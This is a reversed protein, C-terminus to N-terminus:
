RARRDAGLRPALRSRNSRHAATRRDAPVGHADLVARADGAVREDHCLIEVTEAGALVRAIEAYVWPIAGLKGPWDPEHHPWSIWTARHPEWEAPMRFRSPEDLTM